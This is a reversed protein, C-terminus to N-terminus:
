NNLYGYHSEFTYFGRHCENLWYDIIHERIRDPHKKYKNSFTKVAENLKDLAKTDKVDLLNAGGKGENYAKGVVKGNFTIDFTFCRTEEGESEKLNKIDFGELTPEFIPKAADFLEGLMAKPMQSYSLENASPQAIMLVPKVGGKVVMARVDKKDKGALSLKPAIIEGKKFTPKTDSM